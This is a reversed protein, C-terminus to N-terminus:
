LVKCSFHLIIQTKKHRPSSSRSLERQAPGVHEVTDVLNTESPLNAPRLLIDCKEKLAQVITSEYKSLM